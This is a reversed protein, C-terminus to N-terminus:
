GAREQQCVGVSVFTKIVMEANGTICGFEGVGSLLCSLTVDYSRALKCLTEFSPYVRGREVDSLFSISKGINAGVKKLTYKKNKRFRKLKKGLKM